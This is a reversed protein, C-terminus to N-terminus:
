KKKGPEDMEGFGEAVLRALAELVEAADSGDAEIELESGQHAELLMMEMPNRGDVARKGKRVRIKSEFRSAVDLFQMVPRAHLGQPNPITVKRVQVPLLTEDTAL